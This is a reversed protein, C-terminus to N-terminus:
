VHTEEKQRNWSAAMEAAIRVTQLHLEVTDQVRRGYGGAMMTAVPLNAEQCLDFVRRDRKALGEKTLALHGLLDDQHPDVGAVYLALDAKASLLAQRVGVELAELYEKDSTGDALEIDLDSQEKHLPFNSESHISFTFITPDTAALAATGNGQHVDCDLVVVRQVRGSAQLVRAAIVSDNFLCYGQGHDRFAHHTGGALNVAIGDELAAQCAAITGGASRRAREVLEPSWPLGIRRIEQPSLQGHKVRDLYSPSHALLIQEDSAAQPVLLDAEPTLGAVVVMEQLLTYKLLSFRHGEPLPFLFQASTYIKIGM